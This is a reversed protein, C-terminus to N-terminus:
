WLLAYNIIDLPRLETHRANLSERRWLDPINFQFAEFFCVFSFFFSKINRTNKTASAWKWVDRFRLSSEGPVYHKQLYRNSLFLRVEGKSAHVDPFTLSFRKPVTVRLFTEPKTPKQRTEWIWQLHWSVYFCQANRSTDTRQFWGKNWRERCQVDPFMFQFAKASDRLIKRPTASKTADGM